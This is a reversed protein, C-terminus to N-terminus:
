KVVEEKKSAKLIELENDRGKVLAEAEKQELEVVKGPASVVGDSLYYKRKSKNLVNVKAM